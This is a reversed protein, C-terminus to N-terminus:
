VVFKFECICIFIKKIDSLGFKQIKNFSTKEQHLSREAKNEVALM